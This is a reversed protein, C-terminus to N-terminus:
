RRRRIRAALEVARAVLPGPDTMHAYPHVTGSRPRADPPRRARLDHIAHRLEADEWRYRVGPRAAVTGVPTEGLLAGCWLAPLNAGAGIALALSGYPRPNLDLMVLRGDHELVELEFLGQCGMQEIVALARDILGKPADITESCCAAGAQPPWTRLYRSVAIGLLRGGMVVGGISVVRGPLYRQVLVPGVPEALRSKLDDRTVVATNARRLRGDRGTEASTIPKLVLPWGLMLAAARIQDTTECVTGDPVDFGAERGSALLLRKDLMKQLRQPEPVPM